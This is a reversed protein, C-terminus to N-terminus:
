LSIAFSLTRGGSWGLRRDVYIDKMFNATYILVKEVQHFFSEDSQSPPHYSGFLLWKKKRMNLDLFIREIDHPLKHDM